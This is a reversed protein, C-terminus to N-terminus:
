SILLSDYALDCLDNFLIYNDQPLKRISSHSKIKSKKDADHVIRVQASYSKCVGKFVGVNLKTFKPPKGTRASMFDKITAAIKQEENGKFHEVWNVSLSQEQNGTRAIFDADTRLKFVDPYCGIVANSHDKILHKNKVCRLVHNSDPINTQKTM